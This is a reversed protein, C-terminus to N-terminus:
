PLWWAKTVPLQQPLHRPWLQVQQAPPPAHARPWCLCARVSLWASTKTVQLCLLAPAHNAAVPNSSPVLALTYWHKICGVTCNLDTCPTHWFLLVCHLCAPVLSHMYAWCCDYLPSVHMCLLKATSQMDNRKSYWSPCECESNGDAGCVVTAVTWCSCEEAAVPKCLSAILLGAFVTLLAATLRQKSAVAMSYCRASM